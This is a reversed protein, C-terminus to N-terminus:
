SPLTIAKAVIQNNLGEDLLTARIAAIFDPDLDGPEGTQQAEAMDLFAPRDDSTVAMRILEGIMDLEGDVDIDFGAADTGDHFTLRWGHLEHWLVSPRVLVQGRTAAESDLAAALEPRQALMDAVFAASPARAFDRAILGALIEAFPVAQGSLLPDLGIYLHRPIIM